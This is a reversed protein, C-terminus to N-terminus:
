ILAQWEEISQRHRPFSLSNFLLEHVHDLCVVIM